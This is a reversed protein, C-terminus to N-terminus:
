KGLGYSTTTKTTNLDATSLIMGRYTYDKRRLFWVKNMKSIFGDNRQFRLELRIRTISKTKRRGPCEQAKSPNQNLAHKLTIHSVHKGLSKPLNRV